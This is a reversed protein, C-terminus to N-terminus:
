VVEDMRAGCNPCFNLEATGQLVDLWTHCASCENGITGAYDIWHGHRVSEGEVQPLKEITTYIKCPYHPRMVHFTECNDCLTNLAAQRSIYDDM